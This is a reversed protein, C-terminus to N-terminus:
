LLEPITPNTAAAFTIYSYYNGSLPSRTTNPIADSATFFYELGMPGYTAEPITAEYKGNTANLTLNTTTFANNTTISRYSVKASVVGINDTITVSIVKNGASKQLPDAVYTIAPAETDPAATITFTWDTNQTLASITGGDNTIFASADFKIFYPTSFALTGAAFSYTLTNELPYASPLTM